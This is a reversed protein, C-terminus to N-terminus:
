ANKWWDELEQERESKRTYTDMGTVRDSLAKGCKHTLQVSLIFIEVAALLLFIVALVAIVALIVGLAGALVAEQFTM